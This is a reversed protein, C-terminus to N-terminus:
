LYYGIKDFFDCESKLYNNQIMNPATFRLYPKNSTSYSPWVDFSPKDSKNPDTNRAFNSWYYMHSDVVNKGNSTFNYPGTSGFTYPLDSGHCM